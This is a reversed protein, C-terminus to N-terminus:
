TQRARCQRSHFRNGPMSPKLAIELFPEDATRTVRHDTLASHSVTLAPRKPMHCNSCADVPIQALRTQLDFTCSKERTAFRPVPQPFIAPSRGKSPQVHPNHCSQCGLKGGSARYCKSLTMSYYHELLQGNTASAEIPAKVIVVTDNLPTGPRFDSDFKGPQLARIDGEHCDM